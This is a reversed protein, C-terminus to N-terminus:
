IDLHLKGDKAYKECFIPLFLSYNELRMIILYILYGPLRTTSFFENENEEGM